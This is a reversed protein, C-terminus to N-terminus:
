VQIMLATIVCVFQIHGDVNLYQDIIWQANRVYGKAVHEVIINPLKLILHNNVFPVTRCFYFKNCITRMLKSFWKWSLLFRLKPMWSGTSQHLKILLGRLFIDRHNLVSALSQKLFILSVMSLENVQIKYLTTAATKSCLFLFIFKSYM